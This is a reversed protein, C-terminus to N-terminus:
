AAARIVKSGAKAIFANWLDRRALGAFGRCAFGNRKLDNRRAVGYLELMLNPLRTLFAQQPPLRWGRERAYDVYGEWLERVTVGLDEAVLAERLFAREGDSENLMDDVRRTQAQTKQFCGTQQLEKRHAYYGEILWNLIGSGEEELLVQDFDPVRVLPMKRDFEYCLLRRRWASEDGNLSVILRSNSTIVMYFDGRMSFRGGYKKETDLRDAGTLAKVMATGENRLYDPSVDKGVLTSKGHFSHTEFRGNLKDSRMQAVRHDGILRELISVLVSKGSGGQGKLISITQAKNGAILQRGFDRQLLSLDAADPLSPKVLENLFRPCSAGADYSVPLKVTFYDERRYPRTVAEDGSLDLVCDALPVLCASNASCEKMPSISHVLTLIGRAVPAGAKALLRLSKETEALSKILRCVLMVADAAKLPQWIGEEASYRFYQQGDACVGFDRVFRAAVAPANLFPKGVSKVVLPGHELIIPDEGSPKSVHDDSDDSATTDDGKDHDTSFSAPAGADNSSLQHVAGTGPEPVSQCSPTTNTPFSATSM